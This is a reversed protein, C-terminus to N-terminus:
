AWLELELARRVGRIEETCACQVRGTMGEREDEARTLADAMAARDARRWRDRNGGLL